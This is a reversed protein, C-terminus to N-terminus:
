LHRFAQTDEFHFSQLFVLAQGRFRKVPKIPNLMFRM